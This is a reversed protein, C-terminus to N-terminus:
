LGTLGSSWDLPTQPLAQRGQQKTTCTRRREDCRRHLQRWQHLRGTLFMMDALDDKDLQNSGVESDGLLKISFQEAPCKAIDLAVAHVVSRRIKAAALYRCHDVLFDRRSHM